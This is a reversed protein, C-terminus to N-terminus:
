FFFFVGSIWFIPLRKSVFPIEELLNTLKAKTIFSSCKKSNINPRQECQIKDGGEKLSGVEAHVWVRLSVVLGFWNVLAFAACVDMVSGM